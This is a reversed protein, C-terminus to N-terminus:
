SYCAKILKCHVSNTKEEFKGTEFFKDFSIPTLYRKTFMWEKSYNIILIFWKLTFKIFPSWTSKKFGFDIYKKLRFWKKLSM